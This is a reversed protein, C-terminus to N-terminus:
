RGLLADIALVLFLLPFVLSAVSGLRRVRATTTPLFHVVGFGVISLYSAAALAITAPSLTATFALAFIVAFLSLAGSVMVALALGVEESRDRQKEATASYRTRRTTIGLERARGATLSAHDSTRPDTM